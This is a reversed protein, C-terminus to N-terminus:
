AAPLHCPCSRCGLWTVPGTVQETPLPPRDRGSSEGAASGRGHQALATASLTRAKGPGRTGWSSLPSCSLPDRRVRPRPWKVHTALSAGQTPPTTSAGHPLSPLLSRPPVPTAVLVARALPCLLGPPRPAPSPRGGQTQVRRDPQQTSSPCSPRPRSRLSAPLPAASTLGQRSELSSGCCHM